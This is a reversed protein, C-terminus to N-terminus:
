FHQRSHISPHIGKPSRTCAKHTSKENCEDVTAVFENLTCIFLFRTASSLFRQRQQLQLADDVFNKIRFILEKPWKAIESHSSFVVLM